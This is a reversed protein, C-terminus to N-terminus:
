FAVTTPFQYKEWEAHAEEASYGIQKESKCEFLAQLTEATTKRFGSKTVRKSIATISRESGNALHEAFADETTICYQLTLTGEVDNANIAGNKANYLGATMKAALHEGEGKASYLDIYNQIKTMDFLDGINGLLQGSASFHSAFTGNSAKVFSEDAETKSLVYQFVNEETFYPKKQQWVVSQMIEYPKEEVTENGGALCKKYKLVYKIDSVKLQNNDNRAQVRFQYADTEGLSIIRANAM